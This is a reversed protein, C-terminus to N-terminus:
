WFLKLARRGNRAVWPVITPWATSLRRLPATVMWSTSGRLASLQITDARSQEWLLTLEAIKQERGTLAEALEVTRAESEALTRTLEALTETLEMLESTRAGLAIGSGLRSYVARIKASATPDASSDFLDKVRPNLEGVGLIGLGHGHLFEFHPYKAKLENWYRQVGFSRERVNTDHLLVVGRHSLKPLWADFDHKVDEYFHRGDIHLLDITNEDFHDLAEDFTSRVLRSFGSYRADHYSELEEFVHEEYFGTHEDGKWTDVAYCRTALGLRQVAQCVALYSYGRFTGLEVFVHPRLADVLWFAFPAHEVWASQKMSDPLWFAAFSLYKNLAISV